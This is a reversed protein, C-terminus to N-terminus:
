WIRYRGLLVWAVAVVGVLFAFVALWSWRRRPTVTGPDDPSRLGSSTQLTDSAKSKSVRMDSGSLPHNDANRVREGKVVKPEPDARGTKGRLTPSPRGDNEAQAARGRPSVATPSLDMETPLSGRAAPSLQPMEAATPPPIKGRTWPALAKIVDTPRQYRKDPDKALMQFVVDELEAPVEPRIAHIPQPERTQQWLLKKTVSGEPLPTKGTLLFYFTGGLGFIDARIDVTHSDRAQEPALYDPTGIVGMTLMEGTEQTFRALGMDLIRVTGSRDVILNGPKIDRHVLKQEHIYQLGQAAQKIYNAARHINLPGSQGVIQQLSSGDVFEMVLYPVKKDEGSDFSRVFNPHNLECTSRFERAFRKRSTDDKADAPPLVKVAVRKGDAKNVALFVTGMSGAGIRELLTYPGLNFGKSKGQLLQQVQFNTLLGYRVLLEALQSPERALAEAGLRNLFGQLRAEEILGSDRVLPLFDNATSPAAMPEIWDPNRTFVVM